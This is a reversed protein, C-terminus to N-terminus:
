SATADRVLTKYVFPDQKLLTSFAIAMLVTRTSDAETQSRELDRQTFGLRAVLDRQARRLRM